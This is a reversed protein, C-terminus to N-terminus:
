LLSRLAQLLREEARKRRNPSGSVADRVLSALHKRDLNPHDAALDSIAPSGEGMLRVAWERARVERAASTRESITGHVVLEDLRARIAPWEADRLTSRVVRLQRARSPLSKIRWAEHIAELVSEPLELRELRKANQACLDRALDSLADELVRRARKRDGRSILDDDNDDDDPSM